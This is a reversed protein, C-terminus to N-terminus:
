KEAAVCTCGGVCLKFKKGCDCPDCKCSDSCCCSAVAPRAFYGVSAEASLSCAVILASLALAKM